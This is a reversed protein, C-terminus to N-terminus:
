VRSENIGLARRPCGDDEVVHAVAPRECRADAEDGEEEGAKDHGAGRRCELGGSGVDDRVEDVVADRHEHRRRQDRESDDDLESEHELSSV